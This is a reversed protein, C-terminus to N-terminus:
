STEKGTSPLPSDVATELLVRVAGGTLLTLSVREGAVEGTSVIRRVPHRLTIRPEIKEFDNEELGLLERAEELNEVRTDDLNGPIGDPGDRHLFIRRAADPQVELYVEIMEQSAENVDIKGDGHLTFYDRWNPKRRDVLEMGRIMLLENLNRIPRNLPYRILGRQVYYEEEAGHVRLADDGDIWDAISDVVVASAEADIGWKELLRRMGGAVEEKIPVQNIAIRTGETTQTVWYKAKEAMPQRLLPDDFRIRPHLALTLGSQALHRAQFRRSEVVGEDVGFSTYEILGAVAMSMVIMAWM